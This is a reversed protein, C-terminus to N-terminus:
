VKGDLFGPPANRKYAWAPSRSAPTSYAMRATDIEQQRQLEGEHVRDRCEGKCKGTIDRTPMKKM